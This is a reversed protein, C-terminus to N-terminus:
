SLLTICHLEHQRNTKNKKQDSSVNNYHGNLACNCAHAEPMPASLSIFFESALSDSTPWRENDNGFLLKRMEGVTDVLLQHILAM